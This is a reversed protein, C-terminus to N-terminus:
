SFFGEAIPMCFQQSYYPKMNCEDDAEDDSKHGGDRRFCIRKRPKKVDWHLHLHCNNIMRAYLPASCTSTRIPFLISLQRPSVTSREM